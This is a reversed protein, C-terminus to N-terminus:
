IRFIRWFTVSNCACGICSLIWELLNFRWLIASCIYAPLLANDSHIYPPKRNTIESVQVTSSLSLILLFNQHPQIIRMFTGFVLPLKPANLWKWAACRLKVTRINGWGAIGSAGVRRTVPWKHFYLQHVPLSFVSSRFYAQLFCWTIKPPLVHVNLYLFKQQNRRM